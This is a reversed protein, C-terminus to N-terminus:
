IITKCLPSECPPPEPLFVSGPVGLGLASWVGGVVVFVMVSPLLANVVVHRERLLAGRCSVSFLSFIRSPPVLCALLCALAVEWYFHFFLVFVSM